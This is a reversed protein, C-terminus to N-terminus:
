SSQASSTVSSPSYLCYFICFMFGLLILSVLMSRWNEWRLGKLKTRKDTVQKELAAKEKQISEWKEGTMNTLRCLREIADLRTECRKIEEEIRDIETAITKM